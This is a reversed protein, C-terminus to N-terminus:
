CSDAEAVPSIRKGGLEALRADIKNAIANFLPYSSDGLGLVAFSLDNLKPARRGSLYEVFAISDDPPDGEGQTSIVVYLLRESALEKLPYADARLLRVSLGLAQAAQQLAEAERRANGTQSGYVISLRTSDKVEAQPVAQLIGKAPSLQAALGATYGSLWQLAAPDLGDTLRLLLSAREETLASNLANALTANM